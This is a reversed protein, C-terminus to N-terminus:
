LGVVLRASSDIRVSDRTSIITNNLQIEVTTADGLYVRFPASGTLSVHDGPGQINRYIRQNLSDSIEVLTNGSFRLELRDSGIGIIESSDGQTYETSNIGSDPNQGRQRAPISQSQPDPLIPM